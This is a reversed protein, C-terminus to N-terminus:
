LHANVFHKMHLSNYLKEKALLLLFFTVLTETVFRENGSYKLMVKIDCKTKLSVFIYSYIYLNETEISWFFCIFFGKCNIVAFYVYWNITAERSHLHAAIVHNTTGVM